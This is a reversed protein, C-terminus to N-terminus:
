KVEKFEALKNFIEEKQEESVTIGLSRELSKKKFAKNLCSESNRCLYAGRGKARGTLDVSIEGEYCALRILDQKEKSEMCGICRRMPAKKDKM